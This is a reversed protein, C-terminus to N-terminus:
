TPVDVEGKPNGLHLVDGVPGKRVCLMCIVTVKRGTGIADLRVQMQRPGIWVPNKCEECEGRASGSYPSSIDGTEMVYKFQEIPDAPDCPLVIPRRLNRAEEPCTEVLRLLRGNVIKYKVRM